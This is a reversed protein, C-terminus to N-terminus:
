IDENYPCVLCMYLELTVGTGIGETTCACTLINAKQNSIYCM